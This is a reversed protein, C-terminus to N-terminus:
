RTDRDGLFSPITYAYLIFILVKLKQIFELVVKMEELNVGREDNKGNEINVFLVPAGNQLTSNKSFFLISSSSSPRKGPSLKSRKRAARIDIGSLHAPSTLRRNKSTVQVFM